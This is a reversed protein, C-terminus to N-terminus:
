LDAGQVVPSRLTDAQWAVLALAAGLLLMCSCDFDLRDM